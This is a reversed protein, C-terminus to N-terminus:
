DIPCDCRRDIAATILPSYRLFLLILLPPPDSIKELSYMLKRPNLFLKFHLLLGKKNNLINKLFIGNEIFDNVKNFFIVYLKAISNEIVCVITSSYM